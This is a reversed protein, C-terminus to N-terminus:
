EADAAGDGDGSEELRMRDYYNMTVPKGARSASPRRATPTLKLARALSLMSKNAQALVALWASPKNDVSVIGQTALHEAAERELLIARVYSCLLPADSPRFHDAKCANVIDLFIMRESPQLDAPPQLRETRTVGSFHLSAASQRPM